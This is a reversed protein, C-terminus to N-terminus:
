EKLAFITKTGKANLSLVRTLLFSSLVTSSFPEFLSGTYWHSIVRSRPNITFLHFIFLYIFIYIYIYNQYTGSSAGHSQVMRTAWCVCRMEANEGGHKSFLGSSVPNPFRMLYSELNRLYSWRLLKPFFMPPPTRCTLVYRFIVIEGFIFWRENYYALCQLSILWRYLNPWIHCFCWHKTGQACLLM